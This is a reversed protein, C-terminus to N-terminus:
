VNLNRKEGKDKEEEKWGSKEKHIVMDQKLIELCQSKVVPRIGGGGSQLNTEMRVRGGM